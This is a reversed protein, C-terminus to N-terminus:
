GAGADSGNIEQAAQDHYQHREVMGAVEERGASEIRAIDGLRRQEQGAPDRVEACRCEDKEGADRGEEIARLPAAVALDTAKQDRASQPQDQDLEGHDPEGPGEAERGIMEDGLHDERDSGRHDRERNQDMKGAPRDRGDADRHDGAVIRSSPM